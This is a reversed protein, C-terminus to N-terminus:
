RVTRRRGIGSRRRASSGARAGPVARQLRWTGWRAVVDAVGLGAGDSDTAGDGGGSRGGGSSLRMPAYLDRASCCTAQRHQWAWGAHLGRRELGPIIVSHVTTLFLQRARDGDCVGYAEALASPAPGPALERLEHAELHGFALALWASLRDRRASGLRPALEDLLRWGARAHGVEDALIERLLRQLARPGSELREAQILAVAVTESLCSISLVNRLLGELSDELEHDPVDPGREVVQVASGGLAVAAAACLEGHRLEEAEFRALEAVTAGSLGADRAQGKLAAFVRASRTENVMRGLWSAVAVQREREPLAAADSLDLRHRRAADDLDLRWLASAQTEAYGSM